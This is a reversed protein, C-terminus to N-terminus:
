FTLCVFLFLVVVFSRKEFLAIGFLKSRTVYFLVNEKFTQTNQVEELVSDTLKTESKQGEEDNM